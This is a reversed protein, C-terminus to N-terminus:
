LSRFNNNWYFIKFYKKLILKLAYCNSLFIVMVCLNSKGYYTFCIHFCTFLSYIFFSVSIPFHYYVSFYRVGKTIRNGYIHESSKFSTKYTLEIFSFTWSSLYRFTTLFLCIPMRNLYHLKFQKFASILNVNICKIVTIWCSYVIDPFLLM